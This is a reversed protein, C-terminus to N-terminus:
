ILVVHHDAVSYQTRYRDRICIITETRHLCISSFQIICHFGCSAVDLNHMFLVALNPLPPFSAADVHPFM